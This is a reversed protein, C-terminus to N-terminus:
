LDLELGIPCHDSFSVHPEIWARKLQGRLEESVFFYDIRWGLNRSRDGSRYSWWTYQGELDGNLVRFVDLYGKKILRTIFEREQPLFGSVDKYLEPQALDIAKHAINFDGCMIVPKSRRLNEIREFFAELWGMKYALRDEDKQGNPVYVSVFHFAPTEAHVLRGEQAWRAEPLEVSVSLPEARSFVATGSYGKKLTPWTFTSRYGFPAQLEPTLQEPRAKIEQFGLLDARAAKLWSLFGPKASAARLGNVNLSILIV